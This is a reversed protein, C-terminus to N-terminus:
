PAKNKNATAPIDVEVRTGPEERGPYLDNICLNYNKRRLKGTIQLREEIISIGKPKHLADGQRGSGSAERGIGDDEIICKVLGASVLIYKIRIMGKRGELARVGHWIANEIFPQVIGPSVSIGNIDKLEDTEIEYDFKDGFRLHEIRLYDRISNLENELPIFSSDMNALISRILRSFDAIYRNASLSDKNSIFYNISNLSNFIFHPNMQSRLSQLKLEDQKFREKQRMQRIYLLISFFVVAIALLPALLRFLCTEHFGPKIRIIIKRSATWDGNVDTAELELTHYGPKLNAYNINRNNPGTIIWNENTGTMRYRFLTKDSNVFDTSSFSLHFNNKGRDLDIIETENLPSSLIVPEGSVEFGTFLLKQRPFAKKEAIEISDPHFKVFGGMGGFIFEGDDSIFSAGSNFESIAIGDTEDFSRIHDNSPDIRSLGHNTSVWIKGGRDRLLSYTTNNSLGRATTYYSVKGESINYRCVGKGLLALWLEGEDGAIVDEINSIGSAVEIVSSEKNLTNYKLLKSHSMGAWVVGKSDSLITFINNPEVSRWLIETKGSSPFYIALCNESGIYINGEPDAAIARFGRIAPTHRTFIGTGYDYFQLLDDYYGIWIGNEVPIMSRIYGASELIEKTLKGTTSVSGGSSFKLIHDYGRAGAWINKDRDMIVSYVASSTSDPSSILTNVFYGPVSSAMSLGMPVGRSTTGSFWFHNKGEYLITGPWRSEQYPINILKGTSTNYCSLGENRRSWFFLERGKLEDAPPTGSFLVFEKQKEDLMFLGNDTFLWKEGSPSIFLDRRRSLDFYIGPEDIRKDVTYEEVLQYEKDNIKRFGEVQDYILWLESEGRILIWKKNEDAKYPGNDPGKLKFIKINDESPDKLLVENNTLIVLNGSRDVAINNVSDINYGGLERITAFNDTTRNYLAIDRTDTLIWLNNNRDVCLESISFYPLSFPNDPEHYYNKFEHGDFRSLGDWTGAWLFGSSDRAIARVNNHPLGNATTFSKISYSQACAVHGAILVSVTVFFRLCSFTNIKRLM